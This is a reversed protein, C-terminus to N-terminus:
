SLFECGSIKLDNPLDLSAYHQQNLIINDFDKKGVDNNLYQAIKGTDSKNHNLDYEIFGEAAYEILLRKVDEPSKGFYNTFTEVPVNGFQNARFVKWISFLPNEENYGQLKKMKLDEFYNQSEFIASSASTQGPLPKIEIKEDTIVWSITEAYIDM